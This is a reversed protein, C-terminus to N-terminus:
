KEQLENVQRGLEDRKLVEHQNERTLVSIETELKSIVNKLKENEISLDKETSRLRDLDLTQKIRDNERSEAQLLTGQVNILENEFEKHENVINELKNKLLNNENTLESLTREKNSLESGLKRKTKELDDCSKRSL